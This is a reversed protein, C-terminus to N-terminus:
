HLQRARVSPAVRALLATLESQRTCGTKQFLLKLYWRATAYSMHARAAADRLGGGQMLSQALRAEAPTFGFLGSLGTLTERGHEAPPALPECLSVLVAARPSVFGSRTGPLPTM